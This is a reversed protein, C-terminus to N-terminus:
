ALNLRADLRGCDIFILVDGDFNLNGVDVDACSLISAPLCRGRPSCEVGVAGVCQGRLLQM